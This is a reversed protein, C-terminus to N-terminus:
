LNRVRQLDEERGLVILVDSDKIRYTAPPVMIVEEPVISRIAIVQVFYQKRLDLEGLTQGNFSAPPALELISYGPALPIHDLVNESSLTLALREAIDKEPFTVTTAGIKDLVKGHDESQAKVVINKVGLEKLHLTALISAEMQEGLSVVVTDVDHLGMNQLAEKDTADAIIAKRVFPKVRDIKAEDDDIAIVDFGKQSLAKAIFYGFSSMGIVAFSPM